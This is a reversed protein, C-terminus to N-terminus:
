WDYEADVSRVAGVEVYSNGCKDVWICRLEDLLRNWNSGRTGVWADAELSMMMQQLHTRTTAGAADAGLDEVQQLPGRNSRRIAWHLVTWGLPVLIGAAEAPVDPNETSVFLVRHLALPQDQVLARSANTYRETGQLQMETYKDGHRVHAHIAGPPLPLAAARAATLGPGGARSILAADTRLQRVAALAADNLRMLYAVSQGRWWYKMQADSADPWLELLQKRFVSPLGSNPLARSSHHLEM